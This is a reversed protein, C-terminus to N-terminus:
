LGVLLACPNWNWWLRVLVQLKTPTKKFLFWELPISHGWQSKEDANRCHNTVNFVKTDTIDRTYQYGRVHHSPSKVKTSNKGWVWVSLRMLLFVDSSGLNPSMWCTGPWYELSDLDHLVLFSQCVTVSWLLGLSMSVLHLLVNVVVVVFSSFFNLTYCENLLLMCGDRLKWLYIM